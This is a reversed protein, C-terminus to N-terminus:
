EIGSFVLLVVEGNVLSTTWVGPPANCIIETAGVFPVAVMTFPVFTTKTGAVLKRPVAVM